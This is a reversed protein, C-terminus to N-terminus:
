SGKKKTTGTHNFSRANLAFQAKKRLAPSSSKAAQQLKAVPIKQSQPVGLATHLSGQASKKIAIPKKGSSKSAAM